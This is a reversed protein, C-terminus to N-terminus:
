VVSRSQKENRFALFWLGLGLHTAGSRTVLFRDSEGGAERSRQSDKTNRLKYVRGRLGAKMKQAPRQGCTGKRHLCSDSPSPIARIVM